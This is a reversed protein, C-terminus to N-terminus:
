EEIKETKIKKIYAKLAKGYKSAAVEPSLSNNITDLYKIRADFAESLAIYPAIYSDKNTLAFNLTYLYGNLVNKNILRNLSDLKVVNSDKRAEFDAKVYQLNRENFNSMMARYEALKEHTESGTIEARAEFADRKTNITIDGVEGFFTIRDNITNGDNKDLYLYFVEPSDLALSFNFNSNGDIIISDITILTTDQIKQLYITGKKLGEVDGSVNMLNEKKSCAVLALTLLFPVLVTRM